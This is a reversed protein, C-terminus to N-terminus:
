DTSTLEPFIKLMIEDLISLILHRNLLENQFSLFITEAAEKAATQGFIKASTDRLFAHLLYRVQQKHREKDISSRPKSRERFTGNPWLKDQLTTLLDSVTEEQKLKGDINSRVVKEVTSGFVQQFLLVM